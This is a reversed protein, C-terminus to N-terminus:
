HYALRFFASPTSAGIPFVWANTENSGSLDSWNSSTGPNAAQFQLWWGRYGPPWNLVLASGTVSATINTPTLLALAAANSVAGAGGTVEVRYTGADSLGEPSLTITNVTQGALLAGNKRWAYSFPPTGSAVTSFTVSSGVMLAQNTPGVATTPGSGLRFLRAQKAGLSVNWTTGSVASVFGTWLDQAVYSGSIGLRSLSLSKVVSSSTYNFVAVYWTSGNQRVFVDVANTGTNGEVPRFGAGARAVENIGANTLCTQALAQGTSSALDDSNLFVTGSIACSILRSQNENATGGAFKMVDPDSFQYLRGNIWWGYSVSNLEFATQNITTSTDCAIRRGHAYQYPFIPAISLDLFMRGANQQVLYQMGQNYAQVGTTVTSDYHVGEMAGHSMFDLKLFDFGYGKFYNIYYAILQRTGPHTPDLAIGNDHSQVEGAPTRLYADAWKYGTGTMTTNSGQSASGWYVFPTWYIGAKQGNTHCFRAFQQLQSDSLNSWYSDLNIYVVGQNNFNTNQLNSKIFTSAATANSYSVKTGYCYWSNWGFPVGGVWSLKPVMAANADGYAEMVTRWDSGFGVFVTPSVVPNGIVAGHPLVDRTDSSTVGGYVNLISLRNTAGQFYIGTKWRDHTVSGVVLGNRSTNDYFAAVEYSSGNTNIPMANYIVTWSDNDYPVTLAREDSYSGIDVLGYADVVVPGMWSSRQGAGNTGSVEVRALFSNDQDLIFVQKMTPLDGRTLTIDVENNTVTWTRNTYITGTIYTDLGVGSYFGSIKLANQWYFNARGTSLNYELRVNGNTMELLHGVQVPLQLPGARLMGTVLSFALLAVTFRSVRAFLVPPVICYTRAAPFEQIAGQKEAVGRQERTAAPTGSNPDGFSM